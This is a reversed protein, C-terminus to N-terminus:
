SAVAKKVRLRYGLNKSWVAGRRRAEDPTPIGARRYIVIGDREVTMTWTGTKRPEIIVTGTM